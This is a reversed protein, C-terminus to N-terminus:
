LSTVRVSFIAATRQFADLQKAQINALECVKAYETYLKSYDVTSRNSEVYVARFLDGDVIKAGGLSASDKIADKIANVQKELKAIQALLAGLQDVSSATINAIDNKM